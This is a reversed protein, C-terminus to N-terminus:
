EVGETTGGCEEVWLGRAAGAEVGQVKVWAPGDDAGNNPNAVTGVSLNNM